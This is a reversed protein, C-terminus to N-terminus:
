FNECEFLHESSEAWTVQTTTPKTEKYSMDIKKIGQFTGSLRKNEKTNNITQEDLMDAQAAAKAADQAAKAADQAAKAAALAAAKARMQAAEYEKLGAQDWQLKPPM